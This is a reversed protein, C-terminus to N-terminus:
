VVVHAKNKHCKMGQEKVWTCSGKTSSKLTGSCTWFGGNCELDWVMGCNSSDQCDGLAQSLDDYKKINGDGGCWTDYQYTYSDLFFTMLDNFVYKKGM